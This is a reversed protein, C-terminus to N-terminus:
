ATRVPGKSVSMDRPKSTGFAEASDTARAMKSPTAFPSSSIKGSGRDADMPSLQRLPAALAHDETRRRAGPVPDDALAFGTYGQWVSRWERPNTALLRQVVPKTFRADPILGASGTSWRAIRARVEAAGTRHRTAYHALALHIFTDKLSATLAQHTVVVLHNRRAPPDDLAKLLDEGSRLAAPVCRLEPAGDVLLSEAFKGWENIWKEAVNAPAFVVVQGLEPEDLITTAAVALAVFTKGMGVQVLVAALDFL